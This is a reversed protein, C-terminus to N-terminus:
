PTVWDWAREVAEGSYWSVRGAVSPRPVSRGAVLARRGLLRRGDYVRVEGLRQGREVPLAVESAVTVRETLARDIRVVRVLPRAAVLAIPGRGYDTRVRGYVRGREVLAASRYRALGWRLLAALDANRRARTPSGLLTAYITVGPGRAAAVQSWGAASTHGTKVGIVGLGSALLDNWGHLVRGGSIQASSRRVVARVVPNQMAVRALATVDRASSVHGAVDLGDPRVFHTDRLGLRRARGNMLSVFREESGGVHLALAYAADNASQILAAEVLERVTLQEGARLYISSGGAVTAEAAVTVVDDLGARDLAVLVTMLKTISAIPLEQSANQRVLVDGNAGNQVLVARATVAPPGAARAMATLALGAALCVLLAKM